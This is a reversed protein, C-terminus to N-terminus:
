SFTELREIKELLKDMDKFDVCMIGDQQYFPVEEEHAHTSFNGKAIQTYNKLHNFILHFWSAYNNYIKISEFDLSGSYMDVIITYRHNVNACKYIIDDFRILQQDCVRCKM